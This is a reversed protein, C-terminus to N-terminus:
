LEGASTAVNRSIKVNTFCSFGGFQRCFTLKWPYALLILGTKTKKFSKNKSM